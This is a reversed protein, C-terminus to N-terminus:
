WLGVKPRQREVREGAQAFQYAVRHDAAVWFFGKARLVGGFNERDAITDAFKRADFPRSQRYTFSSIGYEETEPTHEGQLERIWGASSEAKDYDFLKTDLVRHLPVKSTTAIIEAGPNLANIIAEVENAQEDDVLDLKNLVIVDAFEIQDILM